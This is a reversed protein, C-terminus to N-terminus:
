RWFNHRMMPALSLHLHTDYPEGVPEPTGKKGPKHIMLFFHIKVDNGYGVDPFEPPFFCEWPKLFLHALIDPGTHVVIVEVIHLIEICDDDACGIELM